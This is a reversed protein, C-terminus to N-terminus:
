RNYTLKIDFVAYKDIYGVFKEPSRGEKPSRQGVSADWFPPTLVAGLHLLPPACLSSLSFPFSSSVSPIQHDRGVQPPPPRAHNNHTHSLALVCHAATLVHRSTIITAGCFQSWAPSSYKYRVSCQWPWSHARAEVGGIIRDVLEDDLTVSPSVVPVGCSANSPRV